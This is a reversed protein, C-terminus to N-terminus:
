RNNSMDSLHLPVEQVHHGDSQFCRLVLLGKTDLDLAMLLTYSAFDNSSPLPVESPFSQFYGTATTHGELPMHWLAQNSRLQTGHIEIVDNNLTFLGCIQQQPNALALDWLMTATKRAICYM